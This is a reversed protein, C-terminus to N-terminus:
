LKEAEALAELAADLEKLRYHALGLTNWYSAQEPADRTAQKAIVMALNPDRLLRNPSTLLNRPIDDAEKPRGPTVKLYDELARDKQGAGLHARGRCALLGAREPALEIARSHDAVAKHWQGLREQAHARQHHAEADGPYLKIAHSYANVADKWPPRKPDLAG